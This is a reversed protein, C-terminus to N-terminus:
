RDSRSTWRVAIPAFFASLRRGAASYIPDVVEIADVRHWRLGDRTLKIGADLEVTADVIQNHKTKQHLYGNVVLRGPGCLRCRVGCVDYREVYENM